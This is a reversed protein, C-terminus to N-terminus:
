RCNVAGATANGARGGGSAQREAAMRNIDGIGANPDALLAPAERIGGHM